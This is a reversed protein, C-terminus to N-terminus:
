RGFSNRMIDKHYNNMTPFLKDILKIDGNKTFKNLLDIDPNYYVVADILLARQYPSYGERFYDITSLSNRADLYDNDSIEKKPLSNELSEDFSYIQKHLTKANDITSSDEESLLDSTKQVFKYAADNISKNIKTSITEIATKEITSMNAFTNTGKFAGDKFLKDSGVDFGLWDTAKIIKGLFGRVDFFQEISKDDLPIGLGFRGPINIGAKEKPKMENIVEGIIQEKVNVFTDNGIYESPNFLKGELSLFLDNVAYSYPDYLDSNGFNLRLQYVADKGEGEVYDYSIVGDYMLRRVEELNKPPPASENNITLSNELIGLMSPDKYNAILVEYAYAIGVNIADEKRLRHHSEMADKSFETNGFSGTNYVTMGHGPKNMFKNIEQVAVKRYLKDLDKKSTYPSAEKNVREMINQNIENANYTLSNLYPKIEAETESMLKKFKPDGEIYGTGKEGTFYNIRNARYIAEAEDMVTELIGNFWLTGDAIDKGFEGDESVNFYEAVNQKIPSANKKAVEKQYEINTKYDEILTNIISNPGRSGDELALAKTFLDETDSDIENYNIIGQDTLFKWTQYVAVWTRSTKVKNETNFGNILFKMDVQNIYQGLSTSLMEATKAAILHEELFDDNFGTNVSDTIQEVSINGLNKSLLEEQIKATSGYHDVLNKNEPSNLLNGLPINNKISEEELSLIQKKFRLNDYIKEVTTNSVDIDRDYFYSAIDEMSTNTNNEFIFGGSEIKPKSLSKTENILDNVFKFDKLKQNKIGQKILDDNYNKIDKKRDLSSKVIDDYENPSLNNAAKFTDGNLYDNLFNDLKKDAERVSEQDKFDVDDYYMSTLATVRQIEANFFVSNLDQQEQLDGYILPDIKKLLMLKESFDSIDKTAKAVALNIAEEKSHISGEKAEISDFFVDDLSRINKQINSQISLMDITRSDYLNKVILKNSYNKVTNFTDLSNQDIYDKALNEFRKPASDIIKDRYGTIDAKLSAMDPNPSNLYKNDLESFYQSTKTKFDTKWQEDIIKIQFETYKTAAEAFSGLAEGFGSAESRVVGFQNTVKTYKTGRELSQGREIAMKDEGGKIL